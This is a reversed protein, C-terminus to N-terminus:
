PATEAEDGSEAASNDASETSGAAKAAATKARKAARQKQAHKNKSTHRAPFLKNAKEEDYRKAMADFAEDAKALQPVATGPAVEVDVGKHAVFSVLTGAPEGSPQRLERPVVDELLAEWPGGDPDARALRAMVKGACVQKFMDEGMEELFDQYCHLKRIHTDLDYWETVPFGRYKIAVETLYGPSGAPKVVRLGQISESHWMHNSEVMTLLEFPALKEYRTSHDSRWETNYEVIIETYTMPELQPMDRPALKKPAHRRLKPLSGEDFGRLFDAFTQLPKSWELELPEAAAKRAGGALCSHAHAQLVGRMLSKTLQPSVANAIQKYQHELTGHFVFKDPFGQIRAKERVTMVRPAFPVLSRHWHPKHYSHVTPHPDSYWLRGYCDHDKGQKMTLCWYPILPFRQERLEWGEKLEPLQGLRCAGRAAEGGKIMFAPIKKLQRSWISSSIASDTYQKETLKMAMPAKMYCLEEDHAAPMDRWGADRRYPVLNCRLQDSFGLEYICHNAVHTDDAGQRLYAIYPTPPASQYAHRVTAVEESKQHRLTTADVPLDCSLADGLVLGRIDSAHRSKKRGASPKAKMPWFYASDSTDTAKLVSLEDDDWHRTVPPPFEPCTLGKMAGFLVLRDRTQPCGYHGTTLRKKYNINYGKSSYAKQMWDLVCGGGKSFVDPVEEMIFYLPRFVWIIEMYRALLRNEKHTMLDHLDEATIRTTNYGSWGQCPPGGTIMEIDGPLPFQSPGFAASNLYAHLAADLGEAAGDTVWQEGGGQTTKFRLWALPADGRLEQMTVSDMDQRKTTGTDEKSWVRTAEDFDVQMATVKIAAAASSRKAPRPKTNKLTHLRRATALFRSVGMRLVTVAPFNAAYTVAPAAEVEVAAVTKVEVSLDGLTGSGDGHLGGCGAFLELTRITRPLPRPLTQEEPAWLAFETNDFTAEERPAATAPADDAATAAAAAKRGPKSKGKAAKTRPKARSAAGKVKSPQAQFDDDDEEEVESGTGGNALSAANEQAVSRRRRKRGSGEPDLLPKLEHLELDERDGDDYVVHFGTEPDYSEVKGAFPLPAGNDGEFLKTLRRGVLAAAAAAM